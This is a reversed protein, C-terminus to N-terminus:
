KKSVKHKLSSCLRAAQSVNRGIAPRGPRTVYEFTIWYYNIVRIKIRTRSTVEIKMEIRAPLNHRDVDAEYYPLCGCHKCGMRTWIAPVHLSPLNSRCFVVSHKRSNGCSEYRGFTERGDSICCVSAYNSTRVKGKWEFRRRQDMAAVLRLLLQIFM